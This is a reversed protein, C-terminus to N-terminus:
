APSRKLYVDRVVDLRHLPIHLLDWSLALGGPRADRVAQLDAVLQVDNLHTVGQVDVLEIGALAPVRSAEVGTAVEQQLFGPSVGTQELAQPSGPLPRGLAIAMRSLIEPRNLGSASALFDCMGLLEFPLGAPGLTHAYCMLKIWDAGASLAALDQGVMRSLGPSYCDLGVELGAARLQATLVSILDTVSRARFDLFRQILAAFSNDRDPPTAGLLALSLTMVGEPDSRSRVVARRVEDLDLSVGVGMRRCHECFCGLDSFPNTAPSPFRIRDLFFGQYVGTQMLTELRKAVDEHVRPHNPCVFTFDPLNRFGGVGEGSAGIVQCHESTQLASGGALLPHWRLLRVGLREAEARCAELLPMPVQWGILLHTFPLRDHALSLREVATDRRLGALEAADELYQITLM